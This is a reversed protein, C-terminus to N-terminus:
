GDYALEVYAASLRPLMLSSNVPDHAVGQEAAELDHWRSVVKFGPGHKGGDVPRIRVSEVDKRASTSVFRGGRLCLAWM